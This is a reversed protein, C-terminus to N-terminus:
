DDTRDEIIGSDEIQKASPWDYLREWAFRALLNDPLCEAFKPRFRPDPPPASAESPRDLSRKLEVPSCQARITLSDFTCPLAFRRALAANARLGTLGGNAAPAPREYFPAARIHRAKPPWSRWNKM